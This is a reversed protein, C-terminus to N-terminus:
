TCLLIEGSLFNYKLFIFLSFNRTSPVWIRITTKNIANHSIRAFLPTISLKIILLGLLITFVNIFRDCFSKNFCKNVVHSSVIKPKKIPVAIPKKVEIISHHDLNKDFTVSGNKTTNFLRGFTASPGIIIIQTPAPVKAIIVIPIAIDNITVIRSIEFPKTLVSLSFILIAFVNPAFLICNNVLITIGAFIVVNILENFILKPKDKTPTIDPSNRTDFAPSPYKITYPPCTNWNSKTIVLTIINRLM